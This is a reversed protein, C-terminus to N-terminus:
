AKILNDMKITGYNMYYINLNDAVNRDKDYLFVLDCEKCQTIPRDLSYFSKCVPCEFEIIKEFVPQQPTDVVSGQNIDNDRQITANEQVNDIKFGCM